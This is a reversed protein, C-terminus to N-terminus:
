NFMLILATSLVAFYANPSRAYEAPIDKKRKEKNIKSERIIASVSNTM